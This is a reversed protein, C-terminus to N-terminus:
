THSINEGSGQSLAWTVYFDERHMERDGFYKSFSINGLRIIERARLEEIHM